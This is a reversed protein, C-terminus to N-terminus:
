ATINVTSSTNCYEKKAKIPFYNMVRSEEALYTYPELNKGAIFTIDHIQSDTTQQINIGQTM